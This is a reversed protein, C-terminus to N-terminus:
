NTKMLARQVLSAAERGVAKGQRSVSDASRHISRCNGCLFVWPPLPEGLPRLLEREPLMGLATILTDCPMFREAGTDLRRLTVGCIRGEGHVCCVTTCTLLPIAMEVISQRYNRPMGGCRERQEVVAEVSCGTLSLQRAMVLGVDGSGLIVARKGLSYGQLNVMRQAQGATFIGAPRTGPLALTGIPIERCGAALVLAQFDIEEVGEPGSLLARREPSVSLVTTDLRFPISAAVVRAAWRAAYEAGTMERHFIGAGFGSHLCQPLVGGLRANRDALLVAEAGAERASLAAAMGAAGAGVVLVDCWM